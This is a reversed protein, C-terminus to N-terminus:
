KGSYYYYGEIIDGSSYNTTKIKSVEGYENYSYENKSLENWADNNWFYTLTETLEQGNYSYESKVSKNWADNSWIYNIDTETLGQGNYSYENKSSENWADNNWTYSIDTETLGQGNYSYEYKVSKNWADNNWTYYILTETLGQNNYSYETKSSLIGESYSIISDLIVVNDENTSGNGVDTFSNENNPANNDDDCSYTVISIALLAVLTKLINKM